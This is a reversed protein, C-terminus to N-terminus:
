MNPRVRDQKGCLACLVPNMEALAEIELSDM